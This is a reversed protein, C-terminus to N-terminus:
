GPARPGLHGWGFDRVGFTHKLPDTRWGCFALKVWGGQFLGVPIGGM